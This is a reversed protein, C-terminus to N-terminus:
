IVETLNFKYKKGTVRNIIFLDDSGEQITWNGETGDVENGGTGINNFHADATYLNAWRMSGSGLDHTNDSNPTLSGSFQVGDIMTSLKINGNYYLQATGGSTFRAFLVDNTTGFEM